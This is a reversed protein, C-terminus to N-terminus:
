SVKKSPERCVRQFDFDRPEQTIGGIQHEAPLYLVCLTPDNPHQHAFLLWDSREIMLELTSARRMPARNEIAVMVVPESTRSRDFYKGLAGDVLMQDKSLGQTYGGCDAFLVARHLSDVFGFHINEIALAGALTDLAEERTAHPEGTQRVYRIM